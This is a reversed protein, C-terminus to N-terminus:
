EAPGDQEHSEQTPPTDDNSNKNFFERIKSWYSKLVVLSGVLAGFLLQILFSGSGPDLYHLVERAPAMNISLLISSFLQGVMM